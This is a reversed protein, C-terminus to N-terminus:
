EAPVQAAGPPAASGKDFASSRGAAAKREEEEVWLNHHERAWNIDVEGSGMAAFAGEMGLSGIYIHALIVCILFVSMITHWAQAFQQEQMPTLTEPLSTGIVANVFTFTKAFMSTTFPFLLAWGSMVVSVGGLITLWFIVKQGANFKYADPHVSPVIIGGGKLAWKVDTLTPINHPVWHIFIWVLGVAFAFAVYNHIFKGALTVQAFIEPGVVPLIVYRGFLINLGTLSLLIFSIAVTWHGMREYYRFRTITRGSMGKSVRMRGRMLFFLALLAIIAFIAYASYNSIPGNRIARWIDGGSQVLVGAQEDPISVTGQVGGRVARWMDADSSAGLSQGPVEGGTPNSQLANQEAGQQAFATQSAATLSLAFLVMVAFAAIAAKLTIPPQFARM